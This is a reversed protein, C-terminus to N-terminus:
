RQAVCRFLFPQSTTSTSTWSNKQFHMIYISLHQLNNVYPSVKWFVTWFSEDQHRTSFWGDREHRLLKIIHRVNLATEHSFIGSIVHLFLILQVIFVTQAKNIWIWFPFLTKGWPFEHFSRTPNNQTWHASNTSFFAVWAPQLGSGFTVDHSKVLELILANIM